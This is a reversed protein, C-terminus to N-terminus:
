VQGQMRLAVLQHHALAPIVGVALGLQQAGDDLAAGVANHHNAQHTGGLAPAQQPGAANRHHFGPLQGLHRQVHHHPKRMRGNATRNGVKQVLAAVPM